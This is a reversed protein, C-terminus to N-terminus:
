SAHERAAICAAGALAGTGAKAGTEAASCEVQAVVAHKEELDRLAAAYVGVQTRLAANQQRQGANEQRLSQQM